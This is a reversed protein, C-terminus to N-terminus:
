VTEGTKGLLEFAGDPCRRVQARPSALADLFCSGYRRSTIRQDLIILRGPGNEPRLVSRVCHKFRLIAEPLQYERFAHGGRSHIVDRRAQVLPSTYPDFPLRVVILTHWGRDTHPLEDLLPEAVVIVQHEEGPELAGQRGPVFVWGRGTRSQLDRGIREAALTTPAMILTAQLSAEVHGAICGGAAWLFRSNLDPLPLHSEILVEGALSSAPEMRLARGSTMGLRKRAYGCREDGGDLGLSASIVVVAQIKRLLLGSLEIGPEVPCGHM